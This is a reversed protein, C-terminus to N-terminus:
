PNTKRQEPNSEWTIKVVVSRRLAGVEYLSGPGAAASELARNEGIDTGWVSLTLGRVPRASIGLDIRNHTPTPTPPAGPISFAAIADYYYLASDFELTYPLNLRSQVNAMHRPLFAVSQGNGRLETEGVSIVWPKLPRFKAYIEGGHTQEAEDNALLVPIEIYFPNQNIIPPLQGAVGNVLKNYDNYYISADLSFKDGVKFRYGMEYAKLTESQQTPDGILALYTPPAESIQALKLNADTQVRNPLRVARSVAAWISQSKTPTWVARLQPQIEFGTYDNHEFKSGVIVRFRDPILAIEYQGFGSVTNYRASPHTYSVMFNEALHDGTTFLTLGWNV